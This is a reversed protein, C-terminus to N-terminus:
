EVKGLVWAIVGGAIAGSIVNIVVDTLHGTLNFVNSTAYGILNYGLGMLLAIMAGGKAGTVFTKINAWQLYIYTFLAGFALEGLILYLFDPPDQIVGTASGLNSEFFGTCLNGYFIFGLIFFTIAGAVTGSLFSKTNM